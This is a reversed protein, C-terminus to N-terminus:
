AELYVHGFRNVWVFQDGHHRAQGPVNTESVLQSKTAALTEGIDGQARTTASISPFHNRRDCRGPFDSWVVQFTVGNPISHQNNDNLSIM